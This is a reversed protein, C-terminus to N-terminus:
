GGYRPDDTYDPRRLRLGTFGGRGTGAERKAEYGRAKLASRFKPESGALLGARQAWATWSAYLDRTTEHARPDRACCKALWAGFSDEDEFYESTAEIVSPPPCM